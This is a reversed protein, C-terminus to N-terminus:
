APVRRSRVRNFASELRDLLEAKQLEEDRRTHLDEVTAELLQGLKAVLTDPDFPKTLYEDAGLEWGRVFDREDTKCTLMMVRSDPALERRRRERLVGFGDLSPMMVDLVVVDPPSEELALLAKTGDPAERVKHGFDELTIALMARVDPDDDVILVDAM